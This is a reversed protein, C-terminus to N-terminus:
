IIVTVKTLLQISEQGAYNLNLSDNKAPMYSLQIIPLSGTIRNTAVLTLASFILPPNQGMLTNYWTPFYSLWVCEPNM